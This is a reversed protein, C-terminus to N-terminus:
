PSSVYRLEGSSPRSTRAPLPCRCRRGARMVAAPGRVGVRRRRAYCCALTVLWGPSAAMRRRHGRRPSAGATGRRDAASGGDCGGAPRPQMAATGQLLPAAFRSCARGPPVATPAPLHGIAHFASGARRLMWSLPLNAVEVSSRRATLRHTFIRTLAYAHANAVCEIRSRCTSQAVAGPSTTRWMSRIQAGEALSRRPGSAMCFPPVPCM